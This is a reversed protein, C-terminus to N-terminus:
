EGRKKSYAIALIQKLPRKERSPKTKNAKMLEAINKNFSAQSKGSSLPMNEEKLSFPISLNSWRDWKQFM